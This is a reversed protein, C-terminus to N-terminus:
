LNVEFWVTKGGERDDNIGWRSAIAQVLGLGRGHLGDADSLNMHPVGTGEDFVEVRVASRGKRVVVDVPARAHLVANTVLESVLLTADDIAHECGWTRLHEATFSRAQRSSAPHAPLRLTAVPLARMKAPQTNREGGSARELV